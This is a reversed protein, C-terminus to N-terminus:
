LEYNICIVWPAASVERGLRDHALLSLYPDGANHWKFPNMSLARVSLTNSKMVFCWCGQHTVFQCVWCPRPMQCSERGAHAGAGEDVGHAASRVAQRPSCM